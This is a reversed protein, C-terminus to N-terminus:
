YGRIRMGPIRQRADQRSRRIRKKQIKVSRLAAAMDKRKYIEPQVWLSQMTKIVKYCFSAPPRLPTKTRKMYLYRCRMVVVARIAQLRTRIGFEQELHKLFLLTKKWRQRETLNNATMSRKMAWHMLAGQYKDNFLKDLYGTHFAVGEREELENQSEWTTSKAIWHSLAMIEDLAGLQGLQVIVIRWHISRMHGVAAVADQMFGVTFRTMALRSSPSRDERKMDRLSVVMRGVVQQLDHRDFTELGVSNSSALGLLTRPQLMAKQFLEDKVSPSLSKTEGDNLAALLLNVDDWQANHLHDSLLRLLLPKSEFVEHHMDTQLIQRLLDHEKASCLKRVLRSYVSSGTDIGLEDLRGFRQSLVDPDAAALGLERIAQPGIQILGFAQLTHLLFDFSFAKTAFAKAAFSDSVKNTTVQAAAAGPEQTELEYTRRGQAAYSAGVALLQRLFPRCDDGKSAMEILFPKISDFTSPLDAKSILYRHLLLADDGRGEAWLDRMVKDYMNEAVLKSHVSCFMQIQAPGRPQFIRFIQFVDAVGDFNKASLRQAMYDAEKENGYRLLTGVVEAFLHRRNWVIGHPTTMFKLQKIDGYQAIASLIKRWLATTTEDESSLDVPTGRYTLGVRISTIAQQGHHQLRYDWLLHWFNLDARHTGDDALRGYKYSNGFTVHRSLYSQRRLQDITSIGYPRARKLYDEDSINVILDKGHQWDARAVAPEPHEDHLRPQNEHFSRRLLHISGNARWPALLFHTRCCLRSIGCIVTRM